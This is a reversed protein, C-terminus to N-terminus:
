EFDEGNKSDGQYEEVTYDKKRVFDADLGRLEAECVTRFDCTKCNFGSMNRPAFGAKSLTKFIIASNRADEVVEEVMRKSPAPLPVREFFTKDKGDLSGLIGKYDKPDLGNAKIAELYTYADTDINARQSLEGSKLVEPVTPAKMRGYDWIIGDLQDEKSHTQNWVWYYLVTQIDSFREQPGPMVRHFKHDMLFRRGAKDSVIKDIKVLIRIEPTLDTIEAVESAHYTLNDHRYRRLYGEFIKECIAPIDGFEEQEEKFLKAYEKKYKELVKWPDNTYTHILKAKIYADLMEHVITGIFAPRNPRKKRLHEVYRYHHAKPCKRGLKIESYSTSPM